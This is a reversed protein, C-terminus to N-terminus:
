AREVPMRGYSGAQQCGAQKSADSRSAPMPGAQQSPGVPMSRSRTCSVRALSADWWVFRSAPMWGAQQCRVQKSADSPPLEESCLPCVAGRVEAVDHPPAADLITRLKSRRRVADRNILTHRERRRLRRKGEGQLAHLLSRLLRLRDLRRTPTPTPCSSQSAPPGPADLSASADHAGLRLALALDDPHGGANLLAEVFGLDLRLRDELAPPMEAPSTRAMDPPDSAGQVAGLGHPPACSMADTAPPAATPVRSRQVCPEMQLKQVIDCAITQGVTGYKSGM